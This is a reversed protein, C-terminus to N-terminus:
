KHGNLSRASADSAEQATAAPAVLPLALVAMLLAALWAHKGSSRSRRSDEHKKM